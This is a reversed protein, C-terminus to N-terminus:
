IVDNKTFSYVLRADHQMQFSEARPWNPPRKKFYVKSRQLFNFCYHPPPRINSVPGKKTLSRYMYKVHSINHMNCSILSRLHHPGLFLLVIKYKPASCDCTNMIALLWQPLSVAVYVHVVFWTCCSQTAQGLCLLLYRLNESTSSFSWSIDLTTKWTALSQLFLLNHHLVRGTQSVYQLFIVKDRRRPVMRGELLVLWWCKITKVKFLFSM